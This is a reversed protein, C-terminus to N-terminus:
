GHFPPKPFKSFDPSRKEVFANKGEKAEETMYYMMTIDGAMNQLGALGDSEAIFTNKLFRIATPSKQLIKNAWIIGENELEDYDVIKNILGMQLAEDANYQDCLFWIEKAKKTGVLRVLEHSGFGADFSGVRPGTQGFVSNTSAITLDCIVQLVHGGGIAYGSVLAIVPKPMYRIFRQLPLVGLSPNGGEDNYGGHGRVKQDGGSCFAKDGAGRFLVVGTEDDEAALKFAESLESITEPRFANRVEPRNITIKTIGNYFDVLIDEYKGKSKWKIEM